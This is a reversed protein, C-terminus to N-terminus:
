PVSVTVIIPTTGPAFPITVSPNVEVFDVGDSGPNIDSSSTTSPAGNIIPNNTYQPNNM